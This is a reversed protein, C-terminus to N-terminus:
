EYRLAAVPDVRTARRATALLSVGILIMSIVTFTLPDTASVGYLFSSVVRTALISTALGLVIGALAESLSEKLILALVNSAQAGLAMRIGIERTRCSVSYAIVGYIGAAALFLALLGFLSLLAAGMQSPFLSLSLTESLTTVSYIPMNADLAQVERRVAVTLERPNGAARIQLAAWSTYNQFLPLYLYPRPEEELTLYKSDRAVGIIQVPIVEQGRTIRLPKGIVEEGPWFRRAMTENIIATRLAGEVDRNGFDRGRLLPIGMTQFYGSGITTMNIVIPDNDPQPPRGEIDIRHGFAPVYLNTLPVYQALSASSVGPVAEVREVLQRYFETGRNQDYGQLGLDLSAILVHDTEFGPDIRQVNRLSRLFLGAGILLVLSLAVQTVVLLHRLTFWRRDWGPSVVEEKLAPILDPRTSQLAPALGFVLTTVLSLLFTFGLVRQDLTLDVDIPFPIQPKAALLLDVAWLALLFGLAGGMLSVLLCETLLQRVLRLRSAGLALRIAIEKRRGSSRALLLNAVNACAILLVLGVVAMLFGTVPMLDTQFGPLHKTVPYVNAGRDRNTDPYVQALQKALISMEAQAQKLSIDPKLRGILKLWEAERQTLRDWDPRGHASMFPVWIERPFIGDTGTFSRPAVGVIVFSHGNLIVHKTLVDPNANFRRQWLPHSIVVVPQAGPLQDEEPLFTRGLEARVGLVSFYNSSVFSGEVREPLAVGGMNFSAGGYAALGSFTQNHDRYHAYEPYSTSNYPGDPSTSFLWVLREEGEVPLPRLWLANVLSFITSNAGIGLALTLVAVATFGPSNLLMGVSYRLDNLM